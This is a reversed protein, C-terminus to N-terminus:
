RRTFSNRASEDAANKFPNESAFLYPSEDCTVLIHAPITVSTQKRGGKGKKEEQMQEQIAQDVIDKLQEPSLTPYKGRIRQM